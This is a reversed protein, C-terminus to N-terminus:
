GYYTTIQVEFLAKAGNTKEDWEQQCAGRFDDAEEPTPFGGCISFMGDPTFRTVIFLNARHKPFKM